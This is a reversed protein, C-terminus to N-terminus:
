IFPILKQKIIIPFANVDLKVELFSTDAGQIHCKDQWAPHKALGCGLQSCALCELVLLYEGQPKSRLYILLVQLSTVNPKWSVRLDTGSLYRDKTFTGRSAQSLEIHCRMNGLLKGNLRLTECSLFNISSLLSNMLGVLFKWVYKWPHSYLFKLWTQSRKEGWSLIIYVTETNGGERPPPPSLIHLLCM